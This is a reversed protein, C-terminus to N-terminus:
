GTKKSFFSSLKSMGSVNAKKLKEVGQSAKTDKKRKKSGDDTASASKANKATAGNDPPVMMQDAQLAKLHEDLKTFDYSGVLEEQIDQPLYQALLECALKRRGLDLLDEHKDDMLGDKALSRTLSRSMESIRPDSLTVVKKRLHRMLQEYSYRLVTIESTIEKVECIRKMADMTCDLSAFRTIDDLEILTSADQSSSARSMEAIKMAAEEFIDDAPRFNITEGDRPKITRLIPILLFLPDVPTMVLLKGDSIVEDGMFWSRANPPAVAQVELIKSTRKGGSADTQHPLFLSAIGTRPHPLRLFRTPLSTRNLQSVVSDVVDLPLVAFHTDM